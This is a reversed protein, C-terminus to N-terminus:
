KSIWIKRRNIIIMLPYGILILIYLFGAFAINKFTRMNQEAM